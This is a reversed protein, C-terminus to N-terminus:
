RETGRRKGPVNGLQLGRKWSINVLGEDLCGKMDEFSSGKGADGSGYKEKKKGGGGV